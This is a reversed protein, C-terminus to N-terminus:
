ASATSDVAAATTAVRAIWGSTEGLTVGNNM